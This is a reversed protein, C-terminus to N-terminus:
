TKDRPGDQAKTDSARIHSTRRGRWMRRGFKYLGLGVLIAPVGYALVVGVMSVDKSSATSVVGILTCLGSTLLILAGVVIFLGGFFRTVGDPRAYGEVPQEPPQPQESTM